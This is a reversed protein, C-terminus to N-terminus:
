DRKRRSKADLKSWADSLYYAPYLHKGPKRHGNRRIWNWIRDVHKSFVSSDYALGDPAMFDRAWYVRGAGLEGKRPRSVEIIPAANDNWIYWRGADTQKYEPNWSFSQLWVNFDHGEIDRQEWDDIWMAEVEATFKVYVRIPSLTRVFTLLQREDEPTAIIPLQRGM